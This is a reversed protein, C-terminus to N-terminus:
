CNILKNAVPDKHPKKKRRAPHLVTLVRDFVLDMM